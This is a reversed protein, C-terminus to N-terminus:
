ISYTYFVHLFLNPNIHCEYNICIINWNNLSSCTLEEKPISPWVCRMKDFLKTQIEQGLKVHQCSNDWPPASDNTLSSMNVTAKNSIWDPKLTASVGGKVFLGFYFWLWTLAFNFLEYNSDLNCKNEPALAPPLHNWKRLLEQTKLPNTNEVVM